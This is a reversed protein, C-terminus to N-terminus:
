RCRIVRVPKGLAVMWTVMNASGSSKENWFVVAMDAYKAMAKNRKHGAVKGDREWNAPFQTVPIGNIAAWAEGADDAGRAGGSVVEKVDEKIFLLSDFVGDIDEPTPYVSRSGAILLKM